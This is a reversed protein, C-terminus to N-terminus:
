LDYKLLPLLEATDLKIIQQRIGELWAKNFGACCSELKKQLQDQTLPSKVSGSADPITKTYCTGDQLEIEMKCGWHNPYQATFAPDEVVSITRLLNQLDKRQIEAQDFHQLAVKGDTLACAVVYPTSFKAQTPLEPIKSTESLGCQKLGVLYTRVTVKRINKTDLSFNKDLYISIDM